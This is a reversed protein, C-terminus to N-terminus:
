PPMPSLSRMFCARAEWSLSRLFDLSLIVSRSRFSANPPCDIWELVKMPVELMHGLNGDLMASGISGRWSTLDGESSLCKEM